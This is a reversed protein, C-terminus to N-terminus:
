PWGLLIRLNQHELHSSPVGGLEEFKWRILGLCAPLLRVMECEEWAVEVEKDRKQQKGLIRWM